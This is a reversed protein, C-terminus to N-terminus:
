KAALTVPEGLAQLLKTARALFAEPEGGARKLRVGMEKGSLFELDEKTRTLIRHADKPTLPQRLWVEFKGHDLKM